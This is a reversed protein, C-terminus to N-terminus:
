APLGFLANVDDASDLSDFFWVRNFLERQPHSHGISKTLSLTFVPFTIRLNVITSSQV